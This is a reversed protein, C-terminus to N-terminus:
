PGGDGLPIGFHRQMQLDSSQIAPGYKGAAAAAIFKLLAAREQVAHAPDGLAVWGAQTKVLAQDGQPAVDFGPDMAHVQPWQAWPALGTWRVTVHAQQMVDLVARPVTAGAPLKWAAAADGLAVHAVQPTQALCLSHGRIYTAAKPGHSYRLQFPGNPVAATYVGARVLTDLWRRTALDYNGVYVPDAAYNFNSLCASAMLDPKHNSLWFAGAADLEAGTPPASGGALAWWAGGGAAALVVVSALTAWLAKPGPGRRPAPAAGVPAVVPPLPAPAVAPKHLPAGCQECFAADDENRTGCQTCFRSM